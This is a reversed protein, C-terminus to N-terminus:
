LIVGVQNKGLQTNLSYESMYNDYLKNLSYIWSMYNHCCSECCHYDNNHNFCTEQLECIRLTM